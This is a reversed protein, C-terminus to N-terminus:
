MHEGARQGERLGCVQRKYVDKQVDAACSIKTSDIQVLIDGVRIGSDDSIEVDKERHEQKAVNIVVAGDIDASIGVTKGVPILSLEQSAYAHGSSLFITLILAAVTAKRHLRRVCTKRSPAAFLGAAKKMIVNM